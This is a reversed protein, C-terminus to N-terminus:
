GLFVRQAHAVASFAKQFLGATLPEGYDPMAWVAGYLLWIPSTVGPRPEVLGLRLGALVMFTLATTHMAIWRGWDSAIVFLPAFVLIGLAAAALLWLSRRGATDGTLRFLAFPLMSLVFGLVFWPWVGSVVNVDWTFTMGYAMDRDLWITPGWTGCFAKQGGYSLMVECVAQSLGAGNWIMATLIVVAAIAVLALGANRAEARPMAGGAVLVALLALAAPMLFANTEHAFGAFAFVAVAAWTVWPRLGFARLALLALALFGVMEKSMAQKVVFFPMIFAPSLILLAVPVTIAVRKLMFLVAVALAVFFAVQMAAVIWLPDIGTLDSLTYTLSGTLGRRMFGARWNLLWDGTIWVHGGHRLELLYRMLVYASTVAYWIRVGAPLALRWGEVAQRGLGIEAKM